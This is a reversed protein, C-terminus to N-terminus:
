HIILKIHMALGTRLVRNSTQVTNTSIIIFRMSGSIISNLIHTHQGMRTHSLM